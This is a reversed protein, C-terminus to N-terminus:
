KMKLENFCHEIMGFEFPYPQLCHSNIQVVKNEKASLDIAHMVDLVHYALYGNARNKVNKLISHAMEAIGLGRANYGYNYILPIDKWENMNYTKIMVPGDFFNPDPVRITGKTGYIEINPTQTAWIDYSSTFNGIVNNELELLAAVYSPIEVDIYQGYKEKSTIMRKSYTTKQMCSVRKVPGILHVLATIYYPGLCFLPGAGVQYYSEPDPHWSEPGSDLVFASFGIIDGIWGDDIVKRATQLGAGLFTDPACGVYLGKEEALKLIKLSDEKEITLPKECYIHKGHELAAINISAHFKPPTLNVIIDIDPHSILEDVTLAQKNYKVAYNKAREIDADSLAYVNLIDYKMLNEIYVQSINGCGIIGINLKKM